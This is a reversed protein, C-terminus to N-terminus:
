WPLLSFRWSGKVKSFQDLQVAQALERSWQSIIERASSTARLKNLDIIRIPPFRKDAATAVLTRGDPSTFRAAFALHPDSIASLAMDVGPLPAALAAARLVPESLVVETLAIEVVLSSDDPQDAVQFRPNEIGKLDALLRKRFYRALVAVSKDFEESSSVALGRSKKWEDSPLVDTRVPKIYITRYSVPEGPAAVWSHKFPLEAIAEEHPAGDLFVPSVPDTREKISCGALALMLVSLVSAFLPVARLRGRTRVM